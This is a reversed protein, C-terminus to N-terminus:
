GTVKELYKNLYPYKQVIFSAPPDDMLFYASFTSGLAVDALTPHPTGLLFLSFSNGGKEKEELQKFHTDLSTCLRKFHEQMYPATEVSVGSVSTLKQMAQRFPGAIARSLGVGPLLFFYRIYGDIIDVSDGVIWRYMAGTKALWWSSYLVIIWNVLHLRPYHSRPPCFSIPRKLKNFSDVNKLSESHNPSELGLSIGGEVANVLQWLQLHSHGQPDLTCFACRARLLFAYLLTTTFTHCYVKFPLRQLRLYTVHQHLVLTYPSGLVRFM